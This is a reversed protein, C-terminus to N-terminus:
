RGKPFNVLFHVLHISRMQPPTNGKNCHKKASMAESPKFNAHFLFDTVQCLSNQPRWINGVGPFTWNKQVNHHWWVVENSSYTSFLRSWHFSTGYPPHTKNRQEMQNLHLTRVINWPHPFSCEFCIM